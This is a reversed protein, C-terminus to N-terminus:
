NTRLLRFADCGEFSAPKGTQGDLFDSRAKKSSVSDAADAELTV